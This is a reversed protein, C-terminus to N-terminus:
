LSVFGVDNVLRITRLCSVSSLPQLLEPTVPTASNLFRRQYIVNQQEYPHGISVGSSRCSREDLSREGPMRKM